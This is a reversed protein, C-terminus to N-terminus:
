EGLDSTKAARDADGAAGESTETADEGNRSRELIALSSELVAYAEAIEQFKVTRWDKEAASGKDPHNLLAERMYRRRIERMTLETPWADDFGLVRLAKQAPAEVWVPSKRRTKDGNRSGGRPLGDGPAAAGPSILDTSLPVLASSTAVSASSSSAAVFEGICTGDHRGDGRCVACARCCTDFGRSAIRGCGFKCSKGKASDAPTTSRPQVLVLAGTDRLATMADDLEAVLRELETDVEVELLEM